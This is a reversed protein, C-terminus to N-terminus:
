CAPELLVKGFAFTQYTIQYAWSAPTLPYTDAVMRLDGGFCRSMLIRAREIHPTATVVTASAWGNEAALSGLMRAEGQTTFPAPTLCQVRFTQPETCIPLSAAAFPGSEAVSVVVNLTLGADVMREAIRLRTPTPPGLVFVADTSAPADTSPWVYLHLAGVAVGLNILIALVVAVVPARRLRPRPRPM